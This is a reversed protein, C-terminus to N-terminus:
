AESREGEIAERLADWVRAIRAHDVAHHTESDYEWVFGQSDSRIIVHRGDLTVLDFAESDQVDGISDDAFGDLMVAYAREATENQFQSRSYDTAM